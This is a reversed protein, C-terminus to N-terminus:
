EELTILQRNSTGESLSEFSLHFLEENDTGQMRDLCPIVRRENEDKLITLPFYITVHSQESNTKEMRNILCQGLARDRLVEAAFGLSGIAKLEDARQIIKDGMIIIEGKKLLSVLRVKSINTEAEVRDRDITYGQPILGTELAKLPRVIRPEVIDGSEQTLKINRKAEDM